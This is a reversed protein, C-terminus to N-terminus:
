QGHVWINYLICTHICLITSVYTTYMNHICLVYESAYSVAHTTLEHSYWNNNKKDVIHYVYTIEIRNIFASIIYNRVCGFTYKLEM